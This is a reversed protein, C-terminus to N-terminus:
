IIIDHDDFEELIDNKMATTVLVEDPTMGEVLYRATWPRGAELKAKVDAFDTELQDIQEKTLSRDMNYGAILHLVEECAVKAALGREKKVKRASQKDRKPVFDDKYSEMQDFLNSCETDRAVDEILTKIYSESNPENSISEYFWPHGADVDELAAWRNFYGEQRAQESM